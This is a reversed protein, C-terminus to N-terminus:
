AVPRYYRYAMLVEYLDASITIQDDQFDEVWTRGDAVADALQEVIEGLPVTVCPRATTQPSCSAAEHDEPGHYIRLRSPAM